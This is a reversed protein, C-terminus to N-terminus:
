DGVRRRDWEVWRSVGMPLEWSGPVSEVVINEEKVGAKKMAGVAGQVLPGICEANWRAHVIGIRLQSATPFSAPPASPGKFAFGSSSAATPPSM